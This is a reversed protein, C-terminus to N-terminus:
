LHLLEICFNILFCHCCINLFCQVLPVPTGTFLVGLVHIFGVRPLTLVVIRMLSCGYLAGLANNGWVQHTAFAHLGRFGVTLIAGCILVVSFSFLVM